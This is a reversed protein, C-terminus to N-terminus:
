QDPLLPQQSAEQMAYFIDRVLDSRTICDPEYGSLAEIGAAIMKPTIVTIKPEPKYVTIIEKM